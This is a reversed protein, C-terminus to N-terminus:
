GFGFRECKSLRDLQYVPRGPLPPESANPQIPSPSSRAGAGASPPAAARKTPSLGGGTAVAAARNGRAQVLEVVQSQTPFRDNVRPGRLRGLVQRGEDLAQREIRIGHSVLDFTDVGCGIGFSEAIRGSLEPASQARDCGENAPAQAAADIVGLLGPVIRM